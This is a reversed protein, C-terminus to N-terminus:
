QPLHPQARNESRNVLQLFSREFGVRNKNADGAFLLRCGNEEPQILVYIRRHSMFFAIYLGLLMLLCGGYVLWVGPDKTAQLGTAYRQQVTLLYAGSPREVTAEQGINLWFVSPEGQGDSFWIKLRRTVEGQRERNIIGYSVGGEPWDVETAVPIRATTEAKSDRKKLHVLYDPLPQYSSQYFTIGKYTLPRNVEIEASRVPAEHEFITVRSRYTKPMGNGYFEIAFDDCHLAFGLDLREGGKHAFVHAVSEGEPLMVSGKFAALPDRFITRAVTSSGVLAGALIVLISCHVVYVGFRSWRGKQAGYLRGADVQTEQARWGHQKLVLAVQAAATPLDGAHRQESRLPFKTLQEPTVALIDRRVLRIVQPIRDASCVILNVAFLTLLGLFWWSNYMDPIDLLQFFRATKFGYQEVYFAAPNNQPIVTGIIATSALLFLLLLALQVSAFLSSFANKKSTTM